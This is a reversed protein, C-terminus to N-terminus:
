ISKKAGLVLPCTQVESGSANIPKHGYCSDSRTTSLCCSCLGEGERVTQWRWSFANVCKAHRCAGEVVQENLFFFSSLMFIGCVHPKFMCLHFNLCLPAWLQWECACVYMRGREWLSVSPCVCVCLCRLNPTAQLASWFWWIFATKTGLVYVREREREGSAGSGDQWAMRWM